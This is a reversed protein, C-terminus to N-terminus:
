KTLKARCKKRLKTFRVLSLFSYDHCPKRRHVAFPDNVCELIMNTGSIKVMKTNEMKTVPKLISTQARVVIFASAFHSSCQANHTAPNQVRSACDCCFRLWTVASVCVLRACLCSVSVVGWVIVVMIFRVLCLSMSDGLVCVCPHVCRLTEVCRRFSAHVWIHPM